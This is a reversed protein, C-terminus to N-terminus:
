KWQWQGTRMQESMRKARAPTQKAWLSSLMGRAAGDFDKARIMALTNKFGLLGAMGMQFAMGQLVAQRAEGLTRWWPLDKDLQANVKNIDNQLLYASEEKTIGGGKRKDLLRGVGITVYGLHDNYATLIEGEESRLQKILNESM